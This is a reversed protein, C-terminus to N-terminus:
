SISSDAIECIDLTRDMLRRVSSSYHVPELRRNASDVDDMPLRFTGNSGHGAHHIYSRGPLNYSSSLGAVSSTRPRSVRGSGVPSGARKRGAETSAPEVEGGAQYSDHSTAAASAMMSSGRRRQSPRGLM